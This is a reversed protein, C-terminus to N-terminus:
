YHRLLDLMKRDLKHGNYDEYDVDTRGSDLVGFSGRLNWLSWGWGNEEWIELNDKMWALAVDHPTYQYSGWEGVHVGVGENMLRKWPEFIDRKLREKNWEDAKGPNLPWTPASSLDTKVWSAKYHSIQMPGYGRTSQGVNLNKAGVVPKTGWQLGDIIILRNPDEARIAEVIRTVVRVYNEEDVNAPENILDFSLKKSSINKYRKAFQQWHFAAADLAKEDKWLNLPESPPNVCYGPIRHLNLNVHIKYKKGFGVAEDIEKLVKEDQEFWNEPKSWCRYSMPLRAFNFGQDAMFKFDDERFPQNHAGDFKEPLNFGRWRPLKNKNPNPKAIGANKFSLISLAGLGAATRLFKRREM